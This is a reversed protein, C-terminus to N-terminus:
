AKYPFSIILSFKKTSKARCGSKYFGSNVIFFQWWYQNQVSSFLQELCFTKHLTIFNSCCTYVVFYVSHLLIYMTKYPIIMILIFETTSKIVIKYCLLWLWIVWKAKAKKVGEMEEQSEAIAAHFKQKASALAADAAVAQEDMEKRLRQNESERKKNAEVQQSTAGSASELQEAMEELQAELDKRAM